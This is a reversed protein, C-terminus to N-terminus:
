RDQGHEAGDAWEVDEPDVDFGAAVAMQVLTKVPDEGAPVHKALWAMLRLGDVAMNRCLALDAGAQYYDRPDKWRKWADLDDRYRRWADDNAYTDPVDPPTPEPPRQRPQEPVFGYLRKAARYEDKGITVGHYVPGSGILIMADAVRPTSATGHNPTEPRKM